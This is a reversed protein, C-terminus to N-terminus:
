TTVKTKIADILGTLWSGARTLLGGIFGSAANSATSIWGGLNSSVFTSAKDLLGAAFNKLGSLIGGFLKSFFGGGSSTTAPATTQPATTLNAQATPATVPALAEFSDIPARAVPRNPNLVNQNNLVRRPVALPALRVNM